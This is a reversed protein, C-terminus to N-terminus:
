SSIFAMAAAARQHQRLQTVQRQLDAMAIAAADLAAARRQQEADDAVFQALQAINTRCSAEAERLRQLDQESRSIIYSLTASEVAERTSVLEELKALIRQSKAEANVQEVQEAVSLQYAGGITILMAITTALVLYVGIRFSFKM